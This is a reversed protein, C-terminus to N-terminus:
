TTKISSENKFGRKIHIDFKKLIFYLALATILIIYYQDQWLIPLYGNYIFSKFLGDSLFHTAVGISILVTTKLYPYVFFLAIFAGALLSVTLHHGYSSFMTIIPPTSDFFFNFLKAKGLVDPLLAGLVLLGRNRVNFVQAIILVILIHSIWDPM